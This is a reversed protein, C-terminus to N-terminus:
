NMTQGSNVANFTETVDESWTFDVYERGTGVLQLSTGVPAGGTQSVGIDVSVRGAAPGSNATFAGGYSLFQITNGTSIKILAIGDPTGNQIPSTPFSQFGYGNTEDTLTGNLSVTSGYTNGNTGNYLVIEYDTLDTGAEGAIEIAEGIDTGINNYHIENIWVEPRAVTVQTINEWSDGDWIQLKGSNEVFVILGFDNYGPNIADRDTETPVKPPMLGKYTAGGDSTSSIELMSKPSPNTTGIGVQASVVSLLLSFLSVLFYTKMVIIKFHIM